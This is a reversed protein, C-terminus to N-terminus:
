LLMAEWPNNLVEAGQVKQGALMGQGRALLRGRASSAWCLMEDSEPSLCRQIDAAPNGPYNGHRWGPDLTRKPKIAKLEENQIGRCPVPLWRLSLSLVSLPVQIRNVVKQDERSGVPPNWVLWSFLNHNFWCSCRTWPELLLCILQEVQYKTLTSSPATERGHECPQHAPPHQGHLLQGPLAWSPTPTSSPFNSLGVSGSVCM